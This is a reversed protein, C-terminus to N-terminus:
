PKLREILKRVNHKTTRSEVMTESRGQPNSVASASDSRLTITYAANVKNSRETMAVNTSTPDMSFVGLAMGISMPRANMM